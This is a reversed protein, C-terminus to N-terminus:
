FKESQGREGDHEGEGPADPETSADAGVLKAADVEKMKESLERHFVECKEYLDKSAWAEGSANDIQYEYWTNQGRTVKKTSLAYLGAFIPANRMRALMLLRKGIKYSTKAFSLLVTSPRGTLDNSHPLVCIFNHYETVAQKGKRNLEGKMARAALMSKPDTSAGLLGGGDEQTAWEIWSLFHIVPLIVQEADVDVLVEGTLDNIVQGPQATRLDVEPSTKQILRMRPWAMDKARLHDLGELSDKKVYSPAAPLASAAPVLEKEAEKQKAM